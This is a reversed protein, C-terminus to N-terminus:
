SKGVCWFRRCFRHAVLLLVLALVFLRAFHYVTSELSVHALLAHMHLGTHSKYAMWWRRRVAEQIAPALANPGRLIRLFHAALTTDPRVVLVREQRSSLLQLQLELGVLEFLSLCVSRTSLFCVSHVQSEQVFDPANISSSSALGAKTLEM